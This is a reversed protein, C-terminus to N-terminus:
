RFTLVQLDCGGVWYGFRCGVQCGVRVRHHIKAKVRVGIEVM